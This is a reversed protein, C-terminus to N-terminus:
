NSIKFCVLVNKHASTLLIRRTRKSTSTSLCLFHFISVVFFFISVAFFRCRRQNKDCTNDNQINWRWSFAYFSQSLLRVNKKKPSVKKAKEKSHFVFFALQWLLFLAQISCFCQFYGWFHFFRLFAFSSTPACIVIIRRARIPYYRVCFIVSDAVLILTTGSFPGPARKLNYAVSGTLRRRRLSSAWLHDLGACPWTKTKSEIKIDIKWKKREVEFLLNQIGKFISYLIWKQTSNEFLDRAKEEFYKYLM